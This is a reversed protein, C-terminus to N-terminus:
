RSRSGTQNVFDADIVLFAIGPDIQLRLDYVEFRSSYKLRNRCLPDYLAIDVAVDVTSLTLCLKLGGDFYQNVRRLAHSRCLVLQQM